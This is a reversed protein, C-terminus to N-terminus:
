TFSDRKCVLRIAKLVKKGRQLAACPEIATWEKIGKVVTSVSAAENQLNPLRRVRNVPM